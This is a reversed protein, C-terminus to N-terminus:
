EVFSKSSARLFNASYLGCSFMTTTSMLCSSWKLCTKVAKSIKPKVTAYGAFVILVIAAAAVLPKWWNLSRATVVKEEKKHEKLKDLFRLEHGDGPEAIDFCDRKKEFWSELNTKM